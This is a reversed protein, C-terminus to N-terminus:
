LTGSITLRLRNCAASPELFPAPIHSRQKGGARGTIIYCQRAPSVRFSLRLIGGSSGSLVSGKKSGLLTLRMTNSNEADQGCSRPFGSGTCASVVPPGFLLPWPGDMTTEGHCYWLSGHFSPVVVRVKMYVTVSPKPTAWTRGGCFWFAPGPQVQVKM